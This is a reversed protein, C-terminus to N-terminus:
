NRYRFCGEVRVSTRASSFVAFFTQVIVYNLAPLFVTRWFHFPVKLAAAIVEFAVRRKGQIQRKSAAHFTPGARTSPDRNQQAPLYLTTM